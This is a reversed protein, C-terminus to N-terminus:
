FYDCTEAIRADAEMVKQFWPEKRWKSLPFLFPLFPTTIRDGGYMELEVDLPKLTDDLCYPIDEVRILSDFSGHQVLQWHETAYTRLRQEIFDGLSLTAGNFWSRQMWREFQWMVPHRVIAVRLMPESSSPELGNWWLYTALWFPDPLGIPCFSICGKPTEVKLDM